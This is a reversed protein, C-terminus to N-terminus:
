ATVERYMKVYPKPLLDAVEGLDMKVLQHFPPLVSLDLKYPYEVMEHRFLLYAFDYFFKLDREDIGLAMDVPDRHSAVFEHFKDVEERVLEENRNELLAHFLREMYKVCYVLSERSSSFIQDVM